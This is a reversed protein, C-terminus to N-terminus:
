DGYTDLHWISEICLAYVWTECVLFCRLRFDDMQLARILPALRHPGSLQILLNRILDLPSRVITHVLANLAHMDPADRSPTVYGELSIM